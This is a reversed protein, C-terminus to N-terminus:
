SPMKGFICLFSLQCTEWKLKKQRREWEGEAGNEYIKGPPPIEGDMCDALSRAAAVIGNCVTWLAEYGPQSSRSSSSGSSSSSYYGEKRHWRSMFFKPVSKKGAASGVLRGEKIKEEFNTAQMLWCFLFRSTYIQTDVSSYGQNCVLFTM